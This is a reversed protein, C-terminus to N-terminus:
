FIDFARLLGDRAPQTDRRISLGDSASKCKVSVLSSHALDCSRTIRNDRGDEVFLAINRQKVLADDLHHLRVPSAQSSIRTLSPLM